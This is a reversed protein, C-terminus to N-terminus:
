KVVGKSELIDSSKLIYAGRPCAPIYDINYIATVSTGPLYHDLFSSDHLTNKLKESGGWPDNMGPPRDM